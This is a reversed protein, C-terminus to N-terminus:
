IHFLSRTYKSNKANSSTRQGRAPYGYRIRRGRHTNIKILTDIREKINLQLNRYITPDRELDSLISSLLSLQRSSLNKLLFSTSLGLSSCIHRAKSSSIGKITKLNLYLSLQPNFYSDLMISM